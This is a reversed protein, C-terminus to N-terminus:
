KLSFIDQKRIEEESMDSDIELIEYLQLLIYANMKAIRHVQIAKKTEGIQKLWIELEGSEYSYLLEDISFCHKLDMISSLEEGNMRMFVGEKLMEIRDYFTAKAFIFQNRFFNNKESSNEISLWGNLDDNCLIM